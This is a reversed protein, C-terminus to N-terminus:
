DAKRRKGDTMCRVHFKLYKFTPPNFYAHLFSSRYVALTEKGYQTNKRCCHWWKRAAERLFIDPPFVRRQENLGILHELWAGAKGLDMGRRNEAILHHTEMDEGSTEPFLAHLYSARIARANNKQMDAKRSSIQASHERFYVLTERLNAFCTETALRTWFNYDQTFVLNDPYPTKKVVATRMIVTPHFFCTNFLLTIKLEPDAQPQLRTNKLRGKKILRMGSGSVGVEPHADMFRVQRELREPLSVDDCDMRAIYKGRALRIGRNLAHVTGLNRENAELRIRPDGFSRVIDRSGDTSGDDLILFEFDTFTQDLISQVAQRLYAEGNHVPMLVTVKPAVRSEM